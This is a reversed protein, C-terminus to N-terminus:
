RTGYIIGNKVRKRFVTYKYFMVACCVLSVLVVCVNMATFAGSLVTDLINKALLMVSLVALTLSINAKVKNSINSQKM